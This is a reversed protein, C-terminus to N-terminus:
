RGTAATLGDAARREAYTDKPQPLGLLEARASQARFSKPNLKLEADYEKVAEDTKGLARLARGRGFHVGVMAPELTAAEGYDDVAAQYQRRRIEAEARSFLTNARSPADQKLALAATFDPIAMDAHGTAAYVEGRGFYADALLAPDNASEAIVQGYLDIAQADRDEAFAAEADAIKSAFAPAAVAMAAVAAFIAPLAPARRM